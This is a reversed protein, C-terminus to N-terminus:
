RRFVVVPGSAGASAPVEEPSNTTPLHEVRSATGPDSQRSVVPRGGPTRGLEVIAKDEAPFGQGILFQKLDPYVLLHTNVSIPVNLKGGKESQIDQLGEKETTEQTKNKHFMNRRKSAM